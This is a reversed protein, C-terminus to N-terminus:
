GVVPALKVLRARSGGRPVSGAPARNISQVLTDTHPISLQIIGAPVYDCVTAVAESAGSRTLVQFEDGDSIGAANADDVNLMARTRGELEVVGKMERLVGSMVFVPYDPDVQMSYPGVEFPTLLGKGRAIGDAHLIPTGPHFPDPCPWQLGVVGLRDYRIGGYSPVLSAIEDMVEAPSEFEFGSAGMRDALAELLESVTSSEGARDVVRNVRQVRREANTFTGDKEAASPAPLVVTAARAVDSFFLDHVVLFDLSSLAGPDIDPTERQTDLSLFMARLGNDAGGRVMQNFTLGTDSPLSVGWAKGVAEVGEALLVHGPLMSPACGMDTTGQSNADSRLPNVGGSAKGLSGTILGLNAVARAIAGGAEISRSTSFLISASDSSAYARAAKVLLEQDVGTSEAFQQVTSGALSSNLDDLGECHGAIFEDDQLGEDLIAKALGALVGVGAGPWHRLWHTAMLSLETEAPDLVILTAGRDVAEKVQVAAVPHEWTLDSGYVLICRSDRLERFGDTMAGVGLTDRLSAVAEADCTSDPHDINNSGMVARTFKQLLYNEENTARPSAVAGFAPGKNEALKATILGLAEDWTSEVLKGNKRVYPTTIRDNSHIYKYGFKGKACSNGQNVPGSLDAISRIVRGKKVLLELQCGVSCHSCITTVSKEPAGSWKNDKETIAGVPCVDVCAGCFTCGSESLSGGLSTGILTRDGREIFTIANAAEIENCARVCRGCVICLNMDHDILPNSNDLPVHRYEYSLDSDKMQLHYVVDQLECRENQPCLVCRDVVNAHRLCTDQPGCHDIRPCTLCGHPHESLVMDMINHRIGDIQRGKTTVVMGDMVGTTCSAPTGRMREVQVVCMRCAGFAKLTPHWCLYPIYIGAERAAEIITQGKRATIEQGDVTLKVEDM